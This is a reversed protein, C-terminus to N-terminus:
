DGAVRRAIDVVVQAPANTKIGGFHTKCAEFGLQKLHEVVRLSPPVKCLRKKAIISLDFFGVVQLSSEQLFTELTKQTEPITNVNLMERIIEPSIIQGSWLPGALIMRAGCCMKTNLDSTERNMCQNCYHFFLHHGLIKNVHAKSKSSKFFIRFYHDKSFSLLPFLAKDLQAAVLQVKRILIRLGIEHMLENRMPEAWYKRRCALHYTGCLPATDTATIALIGERSLRKIATELFPNPSGFPDVDIYDFGKSHYLFDNADMCSVKLGKLGNLTINEKIIRVAKKSCDNINIEDYRLLEKSFRISRIGTGALPDAINLRSKKLANLILISVDRNFKMLPNYFVPLKRSIKDEIPVKILAQGERITKYM